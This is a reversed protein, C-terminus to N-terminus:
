ILSMAISPAQNATALLTASAQQLIQAKIYRSSEEAIDADRLTSLSSTLNQSQVSVSEIASEMRNQAAGIDTVRASIHEIAKDLATLGTTATAAAAFKAATTANDTDWYTTEQVPTSFLTRCDAKAFLITALTIANTAASEEIGVQINIAAHNSLLEIGNFKCSGSIRDIEDMRAQIEAAIATQSASSYVSSSAQEALDRIRQLHSSILGCYDELTTLMDAGMAANDSAVDLSSLKVEWSRAISFGAANDSAKNIKYGTTMRLIADNLMGTAKALNKQAILSAMNTNITLAM